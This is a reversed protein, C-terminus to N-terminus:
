SRTHSINAPSLISLEEVFGMAIKEIAFEMTIRGDPYWSVFEFAFPDGPLNGVMRLFQNFYNQASGFNKQKVHIQVVSILM